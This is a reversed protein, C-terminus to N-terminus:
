FTLNVRFSITRQTPIQGAEVGQINGAGLTVSPDINPAEKYLFLLNNGSLAVNARQLPTTSFWQQPLTYSVSVEQLKAYTADYLYGELRGSFWNKWYTPARIRGVAEGFPIGDVESAESASTGEPLVVGDPIVGTERQNNAVSAETLGSYPGFLNSVSYVDGGMQGNVLASVTLGKYSLTTSIGGTWDPQFNGLTRTDSTTRPVGGRTYVVDGDQDRLLASGVMAGYEGGERAQIDPGFITADAITYTSIGEALEEVKNVNKNFNTTVDWQFDETLVPTATLSAELGRNSIEGANVLASNFGSARSVDIELIQDETVDRYWTASLNIRENFFRLDGGFEIGTTIEPELNPNNSSRQVQQLPQGTRTFPQNVPFTTGLQYPDTDNGVQAWSARIKGFSIIDQDQLAELQTFIFTGSVSPYMYSNDDEPLTSSWDNRLTAEVYALDNYGVNVSGYTSYVLKEEFFDTVNPRGVSNEVTFVGPASLGNSTSTTNNEFTEYRVKGAAFSTLDFDDTLETEYNLRLESGIEQVELLGEEYGPPDETSLEALRDGRRETYHDTTVNYSAAVEETLDYNIEAKGYIRQRDDTQFNEYRGVYPNDTFNFQTPNQAGAVGLYNWGRQQGNPRQYDRMFSDSGYDLQRQTFTNFAAFPNEEFGYGTGVRGKANRYSYRAVATASLDESMDASGNFQVQYRDLESNPMVGDTNRTNLSLRYNFDEGSNSLALNNNYTVGTELFDEVAGPNPSWPTSQGELGNVDDWSYWQRAPRGDLAPGWSEDVAYQPIYPDDELSGDVRFDGDLTRFASSSGAGYQNQYDMFHYADTFNVESSFTVGIEDDGRSGDKTTIQIVGNAGRSGYLAAGSPGKLVSISEINNPNISSAANGYDFGGFGQNQSGSDTGRRNNIVIGDVVILPQNNGELSSYGRLVINSSGGMTNGSRISAGAVKGKLSNIFNENDTQTLDAGGVQQVSTTVAREEREVGLATVVVDQLGVAESPLQVRITSTSNEQVRVTKTKTQYGVFTFRVTQEGTPVNQIRFQGNSGTASGIDLGQVVANVGPLTESTTSDVVTGAITGTEQALVSGPAALLTGLIAALLTRYM